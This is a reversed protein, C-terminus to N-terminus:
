FRLRLARPLSGIGFFVLVEARAAARRLLMLPEDTEPATGLGPAGYGEVATREFLTEAAVDGEAQRHGRRCTM